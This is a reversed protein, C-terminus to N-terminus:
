LHSGPEANRSILIDLIDQLMGDNIVYTDEFLDNELFSTLKDVPMRELYTRVSHDM